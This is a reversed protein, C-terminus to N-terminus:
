AADRPGFLASGVRVMTAGEQVAVELDDTMGMSCDRLGLQDVLERTLAFGPRAAEAAGTRGVTMLGRVDLGLSRCWEVLRAAERPECGAKSPEGSSNVQVFVSAAPAHRAIETAVPERDVSQWVSVIPALVRIKNTQLRGIFHVTLGALHNCKSMLEQAYNEGIDHAGVARVADIADATFAKTVCVVRVARIDSGLANAIRTQVLSYREAVVQPEIMGHPGAM